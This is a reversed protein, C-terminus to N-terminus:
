FHKQLNVLGKLLYNTGLKSWPGKGLIAPYLGAKMVLASELLQNKKDRHFTM